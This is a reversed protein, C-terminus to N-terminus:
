QATVVIAELESSSTTEEVAWATGACGGLVATIAYALKQNTNL